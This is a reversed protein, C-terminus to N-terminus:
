AKQLNIRQPLMDGDETIVLVTQSAESMQKLKKSFNNRGMTSGCYIELAGMNRETVSFHHLHGYIVADYIDKDISNHKDIKTQDKRNELDGHLFKINKGLINKSYSYLLDDVGHSMEIRPVNSSEIFMSVAYNIIRIANDGDLNDNKIGNMRDHNGAIGTFCVNVYQSLSVLLDIVLQTAKVIQTSFNFEVEHSQTNRMYCQEVLDGLSVVDVETVGYLMCFELTKQKLLDLRRKLIEYNYDNGDCNKVIAGVHWDSIIMVVRNGTSPLKPKFAFQPLELDLEDLFADKIEDAIISWLSMERKLRNLKNQEIQLARKQYYLDGIANQIAMSKRETNDGQKKNKKLKGVDRQFDKIMLRYSESKEADLYGEEHMMEVLRNWNAKNSPSLKQLEIKIELAKELHERDVKIQEGKSNRFTRLMNM